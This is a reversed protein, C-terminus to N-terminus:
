QKEGQAKALVELTQAMVPAVPGDQNTAIQANITAATSAATASAAGVQALVTNNAAQQAQLSAVTQQDAQLNVQATALAQVAETQRSKAAAIEDGRRTWLLCAIVLLLAGLGLGALRRYLFAPM